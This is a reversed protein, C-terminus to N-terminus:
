DNKRNDLKSLYDNQKKVVLTQKKTQMSVKECLKIFLNKTSPSTIFNHPHIWFHAVRNRLKADNVMSKYKLLSVLSPIFNRFGYQWNILVGGPIEFSDLKEIQQAKKVIWIEETLTKLIKHFGKPLIDEPRGRYGFIGFDELLNKHKIINRPYVITKCDINKNEAWRKVLSLEILADATDLTDFPIHTYSHTAIEHTNYERVMELLEPMFWGEEEKNIIKNKSYKLWSVYNKSTLKPLSKNLFDERTETFAGVFAFTASINHLNLTKLIFEYAKLLENKTLQSNWKRPRDMMGWKGECDFSFTVSGSNM